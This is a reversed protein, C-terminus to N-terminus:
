KKIKIFPKIGVCHMIFWFTDTNIVYLDYNLISYGYIAIIIYVINM